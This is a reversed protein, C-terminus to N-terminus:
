FLGDLTTVERFGHGKDLPKNGPRVAVAVRWGAAQAAEAEALVDTVFLLQDPADVGISAAINDYSAAEIKAGSTTDFFGSLYPRM